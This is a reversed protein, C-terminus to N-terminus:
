KSNKIQSDSHTYGEHYAINDIAIDRMGDTTWTTLDAVIGHPKNYGSGESRDTQGDDHSKQPNAAM